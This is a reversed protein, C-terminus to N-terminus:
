ARREPMMRLLVGDKLAVQHYIAAAVHGVALAILAYAAIEHVETSPGIWAKTREIPSAIQFLGFDIGKGRTFLPPPRLGQRGRADGSRRSAAM